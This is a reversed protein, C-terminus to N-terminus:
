IKAGMRRIAEAFAGYQAPPLEGLMTAGFQHLLNQLEGQKGADMLPACANALTMIDYTPVATPIVVAPAAQQMSPPVQVETPAPAAPQSTSQPAVPVTGVIDSAKPGNQVTTEPTKQNDASIADALRNIAAAVEPAEITLTLTATSM